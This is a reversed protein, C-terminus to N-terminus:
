RVRKMTVVQSDPIAIGDVDQNTVKWTITNSDVRTIVTTARLRSGSALVANSKITWIDGNRTWAGEGFGGDSEFSWSRVRKAIPDWGVRETGAHLLSDGNIVGRQAVIFNGDPTWGFSAHARPGSDDGEQVWEGITWDIARLHEANTPPIYPAERVSSILWKGDRSVFTTTYRTRTPLSGAPGIVSTVGDEIATDATPFRRSHVEIRLSLGKNAEFLETYDAVIADRGRLMRGDPGAYDADPAWFAGLGAADGRHFADAFARAMDDLAAARADSHSQQNAGVLPCALLIALLLPFARCVSSLRM